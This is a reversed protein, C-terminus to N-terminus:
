KVTAATLPVKFGSVSKFCCLLPQGESSLGGGSPVSVSQKTWSLAPRARARAPARYVCCMSLKHTHARASLCFRDTKSSSASALMRERARANRHKTRHQKSALSVTTEWSSQIRGERSYYVFPNLQTSIFYTPMHLYINCHHFDQYTYCYKTDTQNAHYLKGYLRSYM